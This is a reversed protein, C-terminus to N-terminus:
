NNRQENTEGSNLFEEIKVGDVLFDKVLIKGKYVYARATCVYERSINFDDDILNHESENIKRNLEDSVDYVICFDSLYDGKIYCNTDPKETSIDRIYSFGNDDTKVVGYYAPLGEEPLDYDYIEIDGELTMTYVNVYPLDFTLLEGKSRIISKEVPNILSLAIVIVLQITLFVIVPKAKRM